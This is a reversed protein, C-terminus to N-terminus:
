DFCVYLVAAVDVVLFAALGAQWVIYTSARRWVSSRPTSPDDPALERVWGREAVALLGLEGELETMKQRDLNFHFRRAAMLQMSMAAVLGGVVAALVAVWGDSDPDLVITLLFSQAALALAPMQWMQAHEAVSRQLLAEYSFLLNARKDDDMGSFYRTSAARALAWALSVGVVTAEADPSCGHGGGARDRAGGVTYLDVRLPTPSHGRTSMASGSRSITM